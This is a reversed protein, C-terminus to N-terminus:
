EVDGTLLLDAALEHWRDPDIQRAFGTVPRGGDQLVPGLGPSLGRGLTEAVEEMWGRALRAPLLNRLAADSRPARVELLWGDGYPDRCVLDPDDLAQRNIGVVEGDLPSLLAVHNGNHHFRFGPAGQELLTGEAPLGLADPRGLLSQAFDDMGVRYVDGGMARAWTHGPHYVPGDPVAFWGNALGPSGTVPQAAAATRLARRPRDVVWLWFPVLLLLYALVMLYEAGKTPMFDIALLDTPVPIM